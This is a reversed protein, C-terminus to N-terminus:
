LMKQMIKNKEHFRWHVGEESMIRYNSDSHLFFVDMSTAKENEYHVDALYAVVSNLNYKSTSPVGLFFQQKSDLFDTAYVFANHLHGSWLVDYVEDLWRSEQEMDCLGFLNVERRIGCVYLRHGFHMSVNSFDTKWSPRPIIYFSPHYANLYRLDFISSYPVLSNICSSSVCM